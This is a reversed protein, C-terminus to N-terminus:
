DVIRRNRVRSVEKVRRVVVPKREWAPPVQMTESPIGHDRSDISKMPVDPKWQSSAVGDFALRDTEGIGVFLVWNARLMREPGTSACAGAGAFVVFLSAPGGTLFEIATVIIAKADIAVTVEAASFGDLLSALMSRRANGITTPASPGALLPVLM